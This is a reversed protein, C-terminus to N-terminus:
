KSFELANKLDEVLDKKNELGVSLRILNDVIGIKQRIEYPVAAHTMTAPHSILSEVGGLSEGLTILKLGKFFKNIDIGEKLVFSIIAGYGSAQSKHLKYGPHTSFGPYYIKDILPNEKLFNAVYEANENHRDMRVSLTKIGRILLWSDFPNLIGGTSNQIFHVREGLEENNVVLLGAILDSHGGLYKTASHIVIDAGLKIPKQLYPTMFTNDVITLVKNKRAIESIKYIDTITMLPNTPTEIFIAKVDETISEEVKQLDSTDVLVYNLNFNKFIKDIVRFTGGYVNSSVIIKDGSKFLMLAASIAALGSAFAFGRYGGELDAILKELAERTPNGTRSYEYGSNKGLAEQKYTSTQYIPVSVAGTRKDGDIGGHILLSEIEM